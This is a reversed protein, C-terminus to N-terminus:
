RQVAVKVTKPGGDGNMVTFYVGSAADRGDRNRLDWTAIGAADAFIERVLEGSSTFLKLHTGPPIQTFRISTHGLALRAPNPFAIVNDVTPSAVAQFVQFESFHNTEAILTGAADRRTPLASLSTQNALRRRWCGCKGIMIM